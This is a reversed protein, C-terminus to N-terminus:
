EPLALVIHGARVTISTAGSGPVGRGQGSQLGPFATTDIAGAPAELVLADTAFDARLRLVVEDGTEAVLLITSGPTAPTTVTMRGNSGHLELRELTAGEFSGDLRGRASRATITLPQQATGNPITVDLADCGADGPAVSAHRGVTGCRVTTIGAGTTIAYSTSKVEDIAADANPKDTTDALALMRATSRVREYDGVALALGGTITVGASEVVVAEGAWLPDPAELKVGDEVFRSRPPLEQGTCSGSAAALVFMAAGIALQRM